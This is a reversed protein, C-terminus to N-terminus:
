VDAQFNPINYEVKTFLRKKKKKSDVKTTKDRKIKKQTTQRNVLFLADRPNM